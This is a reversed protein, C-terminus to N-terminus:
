LSGCAQLAGGAAVADHPPVSGQHDGARRAEIDFQDQATWPAQAVVAQLQKNTLTYAFAIFQVLLINKASYIGGTPVFDPGSTPSVNMSSEGGTKNQRVSAVDFEIKGAPKQALTTRAPFLAILFASAALAAKLPIQSM